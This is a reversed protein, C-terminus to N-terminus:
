ANRCIETGCEARMFSEYSGLLTPVSVPNIACASKFGEVYKTHADEISNRISLITSGVIGVLHADDEKTVYFARGERQNICRAANNFPDKPPVGARTVLYSKKKEKQSSSLRRPRPGRAMYARNRRSAAAQLLPSRPPTSSSEEEEEELSVNEVQVPPPALPVLVRAARPKPTANNDAHCPRKSRALEDENAAALGSTTKPVTSDEDDSHQHHHQHLRFGRKGLGDVCALVQVYDLFGRRADRNVAHKSAEKFGQLKKDWHSQSNASSPLSRLAPPIYGWTSNYYVPFKLVYDHLSAEDETELLDICGKFICSADSASVPTQFCIGVAFEMERKGEAVVMGSVTAQRVVVGKKQQREDDVEMPKMSNNRVLQQQEKEGEMPKMSNNSVLQQQEDEGEVFHVVTGPIIWPRAKCFGFGVFFKSMPAPTSDDGDAQSPQVRVKMCNYSPSLKSYNRSFADKDFLCYAGSYTEWNQTINFPSNPLLSAM